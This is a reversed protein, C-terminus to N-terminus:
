INVMKVVVHLLIGFLVKECVHKKLTKCECQYKDSNWKQNPNCKRGGFKCECKCSIHKALIKSENTGTIM